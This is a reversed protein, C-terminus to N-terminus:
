LNPGSLRPFPAERPPLRLGSRHCEAHGHWMPVEEEILRM